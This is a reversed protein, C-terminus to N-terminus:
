RPLLSIATDFAAEARRRLDRVRDAIQERWAGRYQLQESFLAALADAAPLAPLRALPKCGLEALFEDVKPDYSLGAIPRGVLAALILAHLRMGIVFDCGALLTAAQQLELHGQIVHVEPPHSHVNIAAAVAQAIPVDEDAHMPLFVLELDYSQALQSFAAALVAVSDPTLGRQRLAVGVRIRGRDEPVADRDLSLEDPDLAFVPDAVLEIRRRIGLARLLRESGPDRVTIAAARNIVARVVMRGFTGRVPGIGQAFVIVPVGLATATAMIGAYYLINWPGTVDQLLSGGGSIVLDTSRLASWLGVPDTRSIVEVGDPMWDAATGAPVVIELDPRRSRLGQVIAQLLAEDGLNGFGYYGSVLVRSM